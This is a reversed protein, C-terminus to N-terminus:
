WMIVIIYAHVLDEDCVICMHLEENNMNVYKGLTYTFIYCLKCVCVSMVCDGCQLSRMVCMHTYV